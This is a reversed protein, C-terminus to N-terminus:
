VERCRPCGKSARRRAARRCDRGRAIDDLCPSRLGSRSVEVQGAERQRPSPPALLKEEAKVADQVRLASMRRAHVPMLAQRVVGEVALSSLDVATKWLAAGAAEM